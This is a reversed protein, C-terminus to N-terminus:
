CYIELILIRYRRYRERIRDPGGMLRTDRVLARRLV